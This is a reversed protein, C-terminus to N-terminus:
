SQQLEKVYFDHFFVLRILEWLWYLSYSIHIISVTFKSYDMVILDINVLINLFIHLTCFRVLQTNYVFESTYAKRLAYVLDSDVNINNLVPIFWLSLGIPM